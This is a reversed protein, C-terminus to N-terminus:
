LTDPRTLRRFEEAKEHRSPPHRSPPPKSQQNRAPELPIPAEQEVLIPEPPLIAEQRVPTPKPPSIAEQATPTSESPYYDRFMMVLIVSGMVTIILAFKIKLFIHKKVFSVTSKKM